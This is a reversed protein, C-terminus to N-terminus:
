QFTPSPCLFRHSVPLIMPRPLERCEDAEEGGHQELSRKGACYPERARHAAAIGVMAGNRTMMVLACGCFRFHGHVAAVIHAVHRIAFDGAAFRGVFRGNVDLLEDHWM